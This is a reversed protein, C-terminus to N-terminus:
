EISPLEDVDSLGEFATDLTTWWSPPWGPVPPASGVHNSVLWKNGVRRMLLVLANPLMTATTVFYGGTSAGLPALVVLDYDRALRRRRSAAGLNSPDLPGWVEVFQEAENGVYEEWFERPECIEHLSKALSPLDEKKLTGELHMNWLRSQIRCLSWVPDALALGEEYRGERMLSIFRLAVDVQGDHEFMSPELGSEALQMSSAVREQATESRVPTAGAPLEPDAPLERNTTMGIISILMVAAFTGPFISYWEFGSRNILYTWWGAGLAFVSAFIVSGRPIPKKKPGLPEGSLRAVDVVVKGALWGVTPTHQAFIENKRLEEVLALNDRIEARLRRRRGGIGILAALPTGITAL